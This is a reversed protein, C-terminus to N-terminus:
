RVWACRCGGSRSTRRCSARLFWRAAVFRTLPAATRELAHNPPVSQMPSLVVRPWISRVRRAAESERPAREARQSRRARQTLVVAAERWPRWSRLSFGVSERVPAARHTVNMAFRGTGGLSGLSLSPRALVGHIVGRRWGGTRQLAQNPRRGGGRSAWWPAGFGRRAGSPAACEARATWWVGRRSLRLLVRALALADAAGRPGSPASTHQM